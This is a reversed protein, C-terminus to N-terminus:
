IDWSWNCKAQQVVEFAATDKGMASESNVIRTKNAGMFDMNANKPAEKM